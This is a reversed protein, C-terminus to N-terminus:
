LLNCSFLYESTALVWYQWGAQVTGGQPLFFRGEELQCRGDQSNYFVSACRLYRACALLCEARSPPSTTFSTIRAGSDIFYNKLEGVARFSEGDFSALTLAVMCALTVVLSTM